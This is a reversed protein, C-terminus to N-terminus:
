NNPFKTKGIMDLIETEVMTRTLALLAQFGNVPALKRTKIKEDQFLTWFTDFIELLFKNKRQKTLKRSSIYIIRKLLTETTCLTLAFGTTVTFKVTELKIDVFSTRFTVFFVRFFHIKDCNQQNKAPYTYLRKWAVNKEYVHDPYVVYNRYMEGNWTKHRCIMNSFHRFVCPFFTNKRWKTSKQSSIYIM